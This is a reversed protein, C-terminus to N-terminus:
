EHCECSRLVQYLRSDLRIFVDVSFILVPFQLKVCNEYLLLDNLGMCYQSKHDHDKLRETYDQCVNGRKGGGAWLVGNYGKSSETCAHLSVHPVFHMIFAGTNNDGPTTWHKRYRM